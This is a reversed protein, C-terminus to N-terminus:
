RGLFEEYTPYWWGAQVGQPLAQVSNSIYDEYDSKEGFYATQEEKTPLHHASVTVPLILVLAILSFLKKM